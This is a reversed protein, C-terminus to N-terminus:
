WVEMGSKKFEILYEEYNSIAKFAREKKWMWQGRKLDIGKINYRLNPRNEAKWFSHWHSKGQETSTKRLFREFRTEGNKSYWYINDYNVTISKLSSFQKNLDGKSLEARRLIIENRFNEHGFVKNMLSRVLFNGDHNCRIFISGRGSNILDKAQILRPELMALWTSDKYDVKYAYEPNTGLNFPPDIYIVKIKEIFSESLTKLAHFNDSNLLLGSIEKSLDIKESLANLLKYKFSTEFYGTDISL